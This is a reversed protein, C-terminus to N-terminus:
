YRVPATVADPSLPNPSPWFEVQIDQWHAQNSAAQQKANVALVAARDFVALGSSRLTAASEVKGNMDVFAHIMVTAYLYYGDSNRPWPAGSVLARGPVRDIRIGGPPMPAAPKWAGLGPKTSIAGGGPARFQIDVFEWHTPEGASFTLSHLKRFSAVDFAAFEGARLVAAELIKGDADILVAGRQDEQALNGEGDRPWAPREHGSPLKGDTDPAVVFVRVQQAAVENDPVGPLPKLTCGPSKDGYTPGATSVPKQTLSFEVPLRVSSSIPWGEIRKPSYVYRGARRMAEQDLDANGSSQEICADTAIGHYNLSVLVITTGQAYKGQGDTPWPNGGLMPNRIQAACGALVLASCFPVGWARLASISM